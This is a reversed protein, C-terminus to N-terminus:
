QQLGAIAAEKTPYIEGWAIMNVENTSLTDGAKIEERLPRAIYVALPWESIPFLSGGQLRPALILDTIDKDGLGYQQGVLPPDVQVLLSDDRAGATIRGKIWCARPKALNSSETSSLYFAPKDM